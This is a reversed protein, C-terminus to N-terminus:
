SKITDWGYEFEEEDGEVDKMIAVKMMDEDM